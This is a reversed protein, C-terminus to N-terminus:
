STDRSKYVKQIKKLSPIGTGLKMMTPYTHCIKAAGFLGIMFLNLQCTFGQYLEM